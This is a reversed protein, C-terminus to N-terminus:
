NIPALGLIEWVAFLAKFRFIFSNEMIGLRRTLVVNQDQAAQNSADSTVEQFLQLKCPM